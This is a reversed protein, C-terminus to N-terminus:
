ETPPAPTATSALTPVSTPPALTPSTTPSLTPSLAAVPMVGLRQARDPVPALGFTCASQAAM